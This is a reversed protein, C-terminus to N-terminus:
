CYTCIELINNSTPNVFETLPHMKFPPTECVMKSDSLGQGQGRVLNKSYVHGSCIEKIIQPLVVFNSETHPHMTPHHLLGHWGQTM